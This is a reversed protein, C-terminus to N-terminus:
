SLSDEEEPGGFSSEFKQTQLRESVKKSDLWRPRALTTVFATTTRRDSLLARM